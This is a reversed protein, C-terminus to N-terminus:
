LCKQNSKYVHEVIIVCVYKVNIWMSCYIRIHITKLSVSNNKHKIETKISQKVVTRLQLLNVAFQTMHQFKHLKKEKLEDFVKVLNKIYWENKVENEEDAFNNVIISKLTNRNENENIM